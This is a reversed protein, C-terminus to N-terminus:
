MLLKKNYVDVCSDGLIFYKLMYRKIKVSIYMMELFIFIELSIVLNFCLNNNLVCRLM